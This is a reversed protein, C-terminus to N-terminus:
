RARVQGDRVIARKRRRGLEGLAKVLEPFQGAKDRGNRTILKVRAGSVFALVRMGDYKPEFTWGPERPVETGITAYMPEVSSASLRRTVPEVAPAFVIFAGIM